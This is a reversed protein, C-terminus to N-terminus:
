IGLAQPWTVLLNTGAANWELRPPIDFSLAGEITATPEMNATDILTIQYETATAHSPSNGSVTAIAVHRGDPAVAASTAGDFCRGEPAAPAYITTGGRCDPPHQTAIVPGDPSLGVASQPSWFASTGPAGPVEQLTTLTTADVVTTSISDEAAAYAPSYIVAGTADFTAPWTLVPVDTPEGEAFDRLLVRQRDDSYLLRTGTPSWRPRSSIETNGESIQEVEGSRLDAAYVRGDQILESFYAHDGAPSFGPGFRGDCGGCHRMAAQLLRRDGSDLDLVWQDWDSNTDPIPIEFLMWRGNPSLRGCRLDEYTTSDVIADEGDQTCIRRPEPSLPTGDLAFALPDATTTLEVRTGAANFRAAVPSQDEYVTQAEGSAVDILWVTRPPPPVRTPAATPTSTPLAPTASATPTPAITPTLTPEVSPTSVATASASPDDDGGLCATVAFVLLALAAPLRTIRRDM